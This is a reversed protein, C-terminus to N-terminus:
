IGKDSECNPWGGLFMCHFFGFCQVLVYEDVQAGCRFGSLRSLFPFECNGKCRSGSSLRNGNGMSAWCARDTGVVFVACGDKGYKVVVPASMCLAAWALGTRGVPAGAPHIMTSIGFPVIWDSELSTYSRQASPFRRLGQPNITVSM